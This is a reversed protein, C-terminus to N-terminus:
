NWGRNGWWFNKELENSKLCLRTVTLVAAFVKVQILGIYIHTQINKFM